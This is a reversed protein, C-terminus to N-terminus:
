SRSRASRKNAFDGMFLLGPLSAVRSVVHEILSMTVAIAPGIGILSMLLVYSAEQVGFGGITIPLMVMIWLIPIVLLLDLMAVDVGCALALSKAFLIRVFFLILTAAVVKALDPLDNRYAISAEAVAGITARFREPVWPLLKLRAFRRIAPHLMAACGLVGVGTVLFVFYSVDRPIRSEALVLVMISGFVLSALVLSIRDVLTAAVVTATPEGSRCLAAVRLADVGISSPLFSGAFNAALQVRFLPVFGLRVGRGALLVQWRYNIILRDVIAFALAYGVWALDV